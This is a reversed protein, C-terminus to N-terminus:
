YRRRDHRAQLEEGIAADMEALAAPAKRKTKLCGFLEDVTAAPLPRSHRLLIGDATEEVTLETGPGWARSTRISKPLILQGKTSLRTIAM